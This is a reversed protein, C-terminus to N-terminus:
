TGLNNFGFFMDSVDKEYQGLSASSWLKTQMQEPQLPRLFSTRDIDMMLHSPLGSQSFRRV